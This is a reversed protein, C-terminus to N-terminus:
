TDLCVVDRTRTFDAIRDYSDRVGSRPPNGPVCVLGDRWNPIGNVYINEFPLHMAQNVADAEHQTFINLIHYRQQRLSEIAEQPCAVRSIGIIPAGSEEKALTSGLECGRLLTPEILRGKRTGGCLVEAGQSTEALMIQDFRKISAQSTVPGIDTTADLPNGTNLKEIAATLRDVVEDHISDVAAIWSPTFASQGANNFATAMLIGTFRDLDTDEDVIVSSVCGWQLLTPVFAQVHRISRITRIQGMCSLQNLRRDSCVAKGLETGVGPLCAIASKPLGAELLMEVLKLAALPTSFAPKILVSNGAALAYCVKTVPFLFPFVVPTLVGVIGHPQRLTFGQGGRSAPEDALPKIEPGILSSNDALVEISHLAASFEAEAEVQPKGQETQILKVLEQKRSGAIQYLKVFIKHHAERNLSQLDLVGTALGQMTDEIVEAGFWPVTDIPSEDFPNIVTKLKDGLQWKSNYFGKM